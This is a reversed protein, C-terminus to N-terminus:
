TTLTPLFRLVNNFTFVKYALNIRVRVPNIWSIKFYIHRLIHHRSRLISNVEYVLTVTHEFGTLPFIKTEIKLMKGEFVYITTLWDLNLLFNLILILESNSLALIFKKFLTKRSRVQLFETLHQARVTVAM